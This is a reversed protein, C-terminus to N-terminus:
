RAAGAPLSLKTLMWQALGVGEAAAESELTARVEPPLPVMVPAGRSPTAGAVLGSCEIAQAVLQRIRRYEDTRIFAARAERTPLAQALLGDTPDFLDNSLDAWNAASRALEEARALLDAPTPVM